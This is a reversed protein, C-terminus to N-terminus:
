LVCVFAQTTALGQTSIFNRSYNNQNALERKVVIM